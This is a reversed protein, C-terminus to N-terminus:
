KAPVVPVVFDNLYKELKSRNKERYVAYDQAIGEDAANLLIYPELLGASDLQALTVLDADQKSSTSKKKGEVQALVKAALSLADAEEALSHRYQKEQPFEKKFKDGRWSAKALSYSLWVSSSDSVPGANLSITINKEDKQTVNNPTNIHVRKLQLQNAKAWQNLGRWTIPNYPEAIVAQIAQNRAKQMKGSKTLLDAYYRYATERNPDLKIAKGYWEEAKPFDNKAFHSDGIFLVASYNTPDLELAKTYAAIAADFERRAFASEAKRMAEEAPTDAYAIVGDAPIMELLTHMISSQSGLEKARLLLERARVRIKAAAASDETAAATSVLSAGLGVLVMDDNPNQKTLEEFLPLAKSYKGQNYLEIAQGRKAKYENDSTQAGLAGGNGVVIVSLVIALCRM